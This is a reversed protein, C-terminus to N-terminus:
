LNKTGPDRDKLGRNIGVVNDFLVTSSNLYSDGAYV